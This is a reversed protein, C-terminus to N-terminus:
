ISIFKEIEDKNNIENKNYFDEKSSYRGNHKRIWVAKKASVRNFCSLEELEWWSARNINIVAGKKINEKRIKKYLPYFALILLGFGLWALIAIKDHYYFTLGLIIFYITINFQYM